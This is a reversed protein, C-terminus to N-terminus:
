TKHDSEALLEDTDTVKKILSLTRTMFKIESRVSQGECKGLILRHLISPANLFIGLHKRKLHQQVRQSM